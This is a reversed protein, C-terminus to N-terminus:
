LSSNIAKASSCDFRRRFQKVYNRSLRLTTGNLLTLDYDGNLRSQYSHIKDLNVIFSRHVRVFRPALSESLSKLSATHLYQKNALQISVYPTASKIFLIDSFKILFNSKGSKISIFDPRLSQKASAQDKFNQERKKKIIFYKLSTIFAAYVLLIKILDNALTYTLVKMFGYSQERFISSLFWIILAVLLLHALSALTLMKALFTFSVSSKKDFQQKILLIIPPFVVWFCKFLMSEYLFFPYGNRQSHLYDQFIALTITVTLLALATLKLSHNELTYGGFKLKYIM